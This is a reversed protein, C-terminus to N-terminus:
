RRRWKKFLRRWWTLYQGRYQTGDQLIFYVPRKQKFVTQWFKDNAILQEVSEPNQIVFLTLPQGSHVRKESLPQYNLGAWEAVRRWLVQDGFISQFHTQLPPEPQNSEGWLWLANIPLLGHRRRETNVPHESLLMQIEAFTKAWANHGLPRLEDFVSMNMLSAPSRQPVAISASNVCYIMGEEDVELKFPDDNLLANVSNVLAHSQERTVQLDASPMMFVQRQDPKLHVWQGVIHKQKSGQDYNMLGGYPIPWHLGFQNRLLWEEGSLTSHQPTTDHLEAYSLELLDQPLLSQFERQNVGLLFWTAQHKKAM